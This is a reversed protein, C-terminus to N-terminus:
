WAVGTAEFCTGLWGALEDVVYGFGREGLEASALAPDGLIGIPSLSHSGEEALRQRWGPEAAVYGHVDAYDRVLDPFLYLGLSTELAGGHVECAPLSVGLEGAARLMPALYRREFDGFARVAAGERGDLELAADRMLGYNAGHGSMMAVRRVGARVFVDVVADIDLRMGDRTLTLTGPFALHRDSLGGAIVPAIVVPSEVREAAARCFHQALLNDCGLPLHGGHAEVAGLPVLGVTAPDRALRGFEQSTLEGLAYATM